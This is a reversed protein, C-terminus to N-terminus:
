RGANAGRWFLVGEQEEVRGETVLHQIAERIHEESYCRGTSEHIRKCVEQLNGRRLTRIAFQVDNVASNDSM